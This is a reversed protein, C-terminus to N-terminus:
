RTDVYQCFGETSESSCAMYPLCTDYPIFGTQTIFEYVGSYIYSIAFIAALLNTIYNRGEHFFTAICLLGKGTLGAM